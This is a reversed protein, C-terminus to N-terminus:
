KIGHREEIARAFDIWNLIGNNKLECADGIERIEDNTLPKTQPADCPKKQKIKQYDAKTVYVPINFGDQIALVPDDTFGGFDKMFAVPRHDTVTLSQVGDEYGQYYSKPDSLGAPIGIEEDSLPKTQPTTYLPIMDEKLREPLEKYDSNTVFTGISDVWAFPNVPKNLPEYYSVDCGLADEMKQIYIKNRDLEEVLRRIMASAEFIETDTPVESGELIDALKLAEEKM